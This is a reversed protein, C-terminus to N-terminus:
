ATPPSYLGLTNGDLDVILAVSGYNNPLETPAVRVRGGLEIARACHSELDSVEWYVILGTSVDGNAIEIDGQVADAPGHHDFFAHREHEVVTIDWGFLSALFQSQETVNESNFQFYRLQAGV